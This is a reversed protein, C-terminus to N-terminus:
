SVLAGVVAAFFFSHTFGRHGFMAEYPIGLSFAIVDIDPLMACVATWAWFGKPLRRGWWQAAATAVLAHSLITPM